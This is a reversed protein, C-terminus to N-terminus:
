KVANWVALGAGWLLSIILAAGWVAGKSRAILDNNKKVTSILQELQAELHGLQHELHKYETKLIAIEVESGNMAFAGM